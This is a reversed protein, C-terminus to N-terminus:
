PTFFGDHIALASAREDETMAQLSKLCKREATLRERSVDYAPNEMLQGCYGLSSHDLNWDDVVIHLGGGAGHHEYVKSILRAARKTEGNVISPKGREEWCKVCMSEKTFIQCLTKGKLNENM